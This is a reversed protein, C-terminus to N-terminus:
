NKSCTFSSENINRSAITTSTSTKRLLDIEMHLIKYEIKFDALIEDDRLKLVIIEYAITIYGIGLITSEAIIKMRDKKKAPCNLDIGVDKFEAKRTAFKHATKNKATNYTGNSFAM